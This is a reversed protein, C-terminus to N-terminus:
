NAAGGGTILVQGATGPALNAWASGTYYAIDGQAPSVPLLSAITTSSLAVTSGSAGLPGGTLGTGTAISISQLATAALGLDTKVTSSLDVTVSGTSASVTVDTSGASLSTVATQLATAALGLDTVQASSLNVTPATSTGGVTLNSSSVSQVSTAALALGAGIATIEATGWNATAPLVWYYNWQGAAFSTSTCQMVLYSGAPMTLFTTGVGSLQITLNGTANNDLEITHGVHLTTADPMVVIASGSGSSFSQIRASANT